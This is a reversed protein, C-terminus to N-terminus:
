MRELLDNDEKVNIIPNQVRMIDLAENLIQRDMIDEPLEGSWWLRLKM